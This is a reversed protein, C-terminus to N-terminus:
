RCASTTTPSTSLDARSPIGPQANAAKIRRRTNAAWEIEAHLQVLVAESSCDLCVAEWTSGRARTQALSTALALCEREHAQLARLLRPADQPRAVSLKAQWGLRVPEHPLETEMWLTLAESTAWTPHYVLQTRQRRDQVPQNRSIALGRKELQELLRYVDNVDIRWTKGLRAVLRHRPRRRPGPM